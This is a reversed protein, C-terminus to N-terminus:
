KEPDNQGGPDPDLGVSRISDPDSVSSLIAWFFGGKSRLKHRSKSNKEKFGLVSETYIFYRLPVEKQATNRIRFRPDTAKKVQGKFGFDPIPLYDADPDPISLGFWIEM